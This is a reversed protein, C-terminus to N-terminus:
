RQIQPNAWASATLISGPATLMMPVKGRVRTTTTIAFTTGYAVSAPLTAIAPRTAASMYPPSFTEVRYETPYFSTQRQQQQLACLHGDNYFSAWSNADTEM